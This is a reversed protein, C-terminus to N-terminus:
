KERTDLGGLMVRLLCCFDAESTIRGEFTKQKYRGVSQIFIEMQLHSCQDNKLKPSSIVM